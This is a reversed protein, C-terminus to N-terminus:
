KVTYYKLYYELPHFGEWCLAPLLISLCGSVTVRVIRGARFIFLVLSKYSFSLYIRLMM